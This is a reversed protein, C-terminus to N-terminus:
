GGFEISILGIKPGRHAHDTELGVDKTLFDTNALDM